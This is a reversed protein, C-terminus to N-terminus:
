LSRGCAIPRRQPAAPLHAAPASRPQDAHLRPHWCRFVHDDRDGAVGRLPNIPRQVSTALRAAKALNDNTEVKISCFAEVECHAALIPAVSLGPGAIDFDQLMIKTAGARETASLTAILEVADTGPAPCWNIACAGADIAARAEQALARRGIVSLGVILDFRGRTADAFSRVLLESAHMSFRREAAVGRLLAADCGAKAIYDAFATISDLDVAGDEVFPTNAVPIIGRWGPQDKGGHAPRDSEPV